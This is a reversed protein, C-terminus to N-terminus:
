ACEYKFVISSYFCENSSWNYKEYTFARLLHPYFDDQKLTNNKQEFIHSVPIIEPLASIGPIDSGVTQIVDPANEM